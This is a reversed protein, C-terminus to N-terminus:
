MNEYQAAEEENRFLAKIRGDSSYVPYWDHFLTLHNLNIPIEPWQIKRKETGAFHALKCDNPNLGQIFTLINKCNPLQLNDHNWSTDHCVFELKNLVEMAWQLGGQDYWPTVSQVSPDDAASTIVEMWKSLIDSDRITDFGLVGANLCPPGSQHPVMNTKMARHLRSIDKDVCGFECCFVVPKESIQELLENINGLVVCDADIWLNKQHSSQTFYLPKNWTPWYYQDKEVPFILDKLHKIELQDQQECWRRQAISLGLDYLTIVGTSSLYISYYLLQFLGFHNSNCATVIGCDNPVLFRKRRHFKEHLADVIDIDTPNM